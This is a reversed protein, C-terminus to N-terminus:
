NMWGFFEKRANASEKKAASKKAAVLGVTTLAACAAVIAAVKHIKKPNSLDPIFRQMAKRKARAADGAKELRYSELVADVTENKWVANKEEEIRALEAEYEAQQEAIEEAAEIALRMQRNSAAGVCLAVIVLVVAIGGFIALDCWAFPFFAFEVLLMYLLSGILGTLVGVAAIAKAVLSLRKSKSFHDYMPEFEPPQPLGENLKLVDNEIHETLSDLEESFEEVFRKADAERIRLEVVRLEEQKKQKEAVLLQLLDRCRDAQPILGKAKALSLKEIVGNAEQELVSIEERLNQALTPDDIEVEEEVADEVLAPETANEIFETELAEETLKKIKRSM